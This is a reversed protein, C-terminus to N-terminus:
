FTTFFFFVARSENPDGTDVTWATSNKDAVIVPFLFFGLSSRSFFPGLFFYFSTNNDLPEITPTKEARGSPVIITYSITEQM